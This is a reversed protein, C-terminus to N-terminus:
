LLQLGQYFLLICEKQFNKKLFNVYVNTASIDSHGLIDSLQKVDAGNALLHLAFSNRLMKPTIDKSIGADKAYSKIIKWLGQRTM